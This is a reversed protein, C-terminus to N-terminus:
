TGRLNLELKCLDVKHKDLFDLPIRALALAGSAIRMGVAGGVGGNGLDGFGVLICDGARGVGGSKGWGPREVEEVM